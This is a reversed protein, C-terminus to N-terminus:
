VVGPMLRILYGTSVKSKAFVCFSVATKEPDFDWQVFRPNSTFFAAKDSNQKRAMLSTFKLIEFM